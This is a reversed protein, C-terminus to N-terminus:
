FAFEQILYPTGQHDGMQLVKAIVPILSGPFSDERGYFHMGPSFWMKGVNRLIKLAFKAGSDNRASYGIASRVRGIKELLTLGAIRFGGARGEALVKRSLFHYFWIVYLWILFSPLSEPVQPSLLGMLGSGSFSLQQDNVQGM